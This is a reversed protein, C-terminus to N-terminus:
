VYHLKHAGSYNLVFNFQQYFFDDEANLHGMKNIFIACSFMEKKLYCNLTITKCGQIEIKSKKQCDESLKIYRFTTGLVWM